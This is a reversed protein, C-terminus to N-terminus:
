CRSKRLEGCLPACVFMYRDCVTTVTVLGDPGEKVEVSEMTKIPSREDGDNIISLSSFDHVGVLCAAARQMAEVNLTRKTGLEWV